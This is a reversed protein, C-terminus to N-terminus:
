WVVCLDRPPILITDGETIGAGETKFPPHRIIIKCSLLLQKQGVKKM